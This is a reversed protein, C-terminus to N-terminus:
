KFSKRTRTVAEPHFCFTQSFDSLICVEDVFSSAFRPQTHRPQAFNEPQADFVIKVDTRSVKWASARLIKKTDSKLLNGPPAQSEASLVVIM